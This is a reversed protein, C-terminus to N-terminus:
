AIMNQYSQEILLVQLALELNLEWGIIDANKKPVLISYLIYFIHKYIYFINECTMRLYGQSKQHRTHKIIDM